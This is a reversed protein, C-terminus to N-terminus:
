DSFAVSSPIWAPYALCSKEIIKWEPLTYLLLRPQHLCITCVMQEQSKGILQDRYRAPVAM